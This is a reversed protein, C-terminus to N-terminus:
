SWQQEYMKPDNLFRFLRVGQDGGIATLSPATNAGSVMVLGAESIVKIATTAAGSCTTGIVAVAQPDAVVKMAAITGGESTCREDEIQLEIPHGLLQNDRMALALEIGRTQDSGIVAVGGSLAQLVGLKIPQGPAIDVCGIADTCEFPLPTQRCAVLLIGTLSILSFM